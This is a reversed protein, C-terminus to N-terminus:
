EFNGYAIISWMYAIPKMFLLVLELPDKTIINFIHRDKLKNNLYGNKKYAISAGVMYRFRKRLFKSLNASGSQDHFLVANPNYSGKFGHKVAKITFDYDEGGMTLSTDFSVQKLIKTKWASNGMPGLTVDKSVIEAYFKHDFGNIFEEIRNKPKNLPITPGIVFDSERNIIPGTIEQLWNSTPMEDTDIFVTIEGTIKDRIGERSEAVSGPVSCFKVKDSKINHISNVLNQESGGDAIILEKINLAILSSILNIIRSDNFSTIVISISNENDPINEPMQLPIIFYLM